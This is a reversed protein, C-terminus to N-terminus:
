LLRYVEVLAVGTLGNKGAVIASYAGPALTALASELDNSPQLNTAEIESQQSEKWNDDSQILAGNGDHLEMTPDALVDSTGFQTLSPGLARVLVNANGDAGGPIFGGIMVNADTEVFGRTSINALQSDATQDLDYAEVLGVGTTANRGRVIASYNGPELTSVLASELDDSPDLNSEMLTTQDKASLDVWNDNM